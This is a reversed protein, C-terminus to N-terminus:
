LVTVSSEICSSKIGSPAYLGLSSFILLNRKTWFHVYSTILHMGISVLTLFDGRVRRTLKAMVLPFLFESM